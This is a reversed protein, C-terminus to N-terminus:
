NTQIKLRAIKSHLTTRPIGLAKATNSVNGQHNKLAEQVILSEEERLQNQLNLHTNSRTKTIQNDSVRNTLVMKKLSSGGTHLLLSRQIVNELERVNGPWTHQMLTELAKPEVMTVEPRLKPAFKAVFAQALLMIDKPRERLPSITIEGINLRYYLDERFKGEKIAQHPDQNLAAILRVDSHLSHQAGLPLYKGDQLVRLLKSQLAIPMSNIEDLFLTGGDAQTFLGKRNEAGTFAGKTTGFLTSELLTEPIAACNLSMMPRASRGSLAHASQAFLEKGTGTEGYILIPLDTNAFIGIREIQSLLTEDATIIKPTETIVSELKSPREKVTRGIEIAGILENDPSFLPTVTHLYYTQRGAIGQYAQYSNTIHAREKLCRLLTSTEPTLWQNIELLHHGIVQEQDTGDLRASALNYYIFYGDKDVATIPEDFTDLVPKISEILWKLSKKSM